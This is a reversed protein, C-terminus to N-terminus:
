QGCFAQIANLLSPVNPFSLATAGAALSHYQKTIAATSQSPCNTYGPKGAFMAPIAVFARYVSNTDLVYGTLLGAPNLGTVFTGYYADVTDAGPADFTMFTGGPARVFGHQVFNADLYWGAVAGSPNNNNVVVGQGADTGQGPVKFTTYTGKPARVFGYVVNNVDAYSGVIEGAPNISVAVTGNVAGPADFEIFTGDAFRAFGHEVYNADTYASTYTGASNLAYFAQYNAYVYFTGQGPMSGAGPADFTTITGNLARLFAHPVNNMDWYNGAIEGSNILRYIDRCERRSM